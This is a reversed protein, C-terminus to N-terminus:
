RGGDPLVPLVVPPPLKIKQDKLALETMIETRVTRVLIEQVGLELRDQRAEVKAVRDVVPALGADQRTQGRSEMTFFVAFATGISAVVIGVVTKVENLKFGDNVKKDLKKVDHQMAPIYYSDTIPGDRAADYEPPDDDGLALPTRPPKM